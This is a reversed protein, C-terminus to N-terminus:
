NNNSPSFIPINMSPVLGGLIWLHFELYIHFNPFLFIRSPIAEVERSYTTELYFPYPNHIM